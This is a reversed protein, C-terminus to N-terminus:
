DLKQVVVPSADDAPEGQAPFKSTYGQSGQANQPTNVNFPSQGNNALKREQQAKLRARIEAAKDITHYLKMAAGAVTDGIHGAAAALKVPKYKGYGVVDVCDWIASISDKIEPMELAGSVLDYEAPDFHAAMGTRLLLTTFKSLGDVLNDLTPDYEHIQLYAEKDEDSLALFQRVDALDEAIQDKKLNRGQRRAKHKAQILRQIPTLEKAPEESDSDDEGSEEPEEHITEVKSSYTTQSKKIAPPDQLGAETSSRKKTNSSSEVVTISGAAAATTTTSSSPTEAM